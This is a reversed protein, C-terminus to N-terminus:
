KPKMSFKINMCLISNTGQTLKLDVDFDGSGMWSMPTTSFDPLDFLTKIDILGAAIDFPCACDISNDLLCEPCNEATFDLRRKLVQCFDSNVCSGVYNGDVLYCSIKLKLGSVTRFITIDSKIPGMITQSNQASFVFDM